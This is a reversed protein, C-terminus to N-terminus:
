IKEAILVIANMHQRHKQFVRYMEVIRKRAPANVAINYGIKLSRLIGEDELVRKFDLLYMGNTYVEKIKFGEQELLTKWETETLPRANVKISLALDRQIENKLDTDVEVLGLEHIAYFGGKKLIRHAEKIIESKRHDAHMTLMAEGYVKDKSNNELSTQAANGLVFKINEDKFKEGLMKVVDEDADVGIYSKPQQAITLSATFGMGPAFEVIDDQHSIHLGSVLKQTLEKGGPRLVRKGMKALIWHGQAKAFDTTDMVLVKNSKKRNKIYNV